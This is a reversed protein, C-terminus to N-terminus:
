VIGLVVNEGFLKHVWGLGCIWLHPWTSLSIELLLKRRIERQCQCGFGIATLATSQFCSLTCNTPWWHRQATSTKQNPIKNQPSSKWAESCPSGDAKGLISKHIAFMISSQTFDECLRKKKWGQVTEGWAPFRHLSFVNLGRWSSVTFHISATLASKHVQNGM